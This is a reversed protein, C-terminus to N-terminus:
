EGGAPAPPTSGIARVHDKLVNFNAEQQGPAIYSKVRELFSGTDSGPVLAANNKKIEENFRGGQEKALENLVAARLPKIQLSLPNNKFEDELKKVADLTGATLQNGKAGAGAKEAMINNRQREISFDQADKLKKEADERVIHTAQDTLQGKQAMLAGIQAQAQDKVIQSNATSAVQQYKNIAIDLALAKAAASAAADDGYIQRAVAYASQAGAVSAQGKKLRQEFEAKQADIDRDIAQNMMGAAKNVGDNGAGLAGLALGIIGAIKGGTSRSAWYHGPDVTTDINRAQQQAAQLENFRGMAFNHAELSRKDAASQQRQLENGYEAQATALNRAEEAKAEGEDLAAIQQSHLGLDIDNQGPAKLPADAQVYGTKLPGAPKAPAAPPPQTAPAGAPTVGDAANAATDQHANALAGVVQNYPQVLTPGVIPLSEAIGKPTVKSFQESAASKINAADKKTQGWADSLVGKARDVLGTSSAERNKLEQAQKWVDNPANALDAIEYAKGGEDKREPLADTEGGDAMKPAMAKIKAHLEESLGRKPVKFTGSKDALQYHDPHEAILQAKM